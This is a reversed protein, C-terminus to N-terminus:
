IGIQKLLIKLESKNKIAGEFIQYYDGFEENNHIILEKTKINYNLFDYYIYDSSDGMIEADELKYYDNWKRFKLVNKDQINNTYEWDLSEIDEKDLYKVKLSQGTPIYLNLDGVTDYEGNVIVKVWKSEYPNATEYEFGFHFESIDPTYYKDGM